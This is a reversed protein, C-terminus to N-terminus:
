KDELMKEAEAMKGVALEEPIFVFECTDCYFLSPTFTTNMYAVNVKGFVLPRGCKGCRWRNEVPFANIEPSM